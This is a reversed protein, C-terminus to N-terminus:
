EKVSMHNLVFRRLSDVSKYGSTQAVAQGDRIFFFAPIGQVKMGSVLKPNKDYDITVVKLDGGFSQAISAVNPASRRCYPCWDATFFLLVPGQHNIVEYQFNQQTVNVTGPLATTSTREGMAQASLGALLAFCFSILLAFRMSRM